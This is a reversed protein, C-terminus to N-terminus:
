REDTLGGKESGPLYKKQFDAVSIPQSFLWGQFCNYGMDVLRTLQEEKEVGEVIASIGMDHVLGAVMRLVNEANPSIELRKVFSMDLKIIDIDLETLVGLSSYGNGFDDIEVIFGCDRMKKVIPMIFHANEMMATETIELHLLATPIRYQETLRNLEALVDLQFLNIPSINVSLPPPDIGQDLWNRLTQCALEWMERDLRSIQGSEECVPVFEGPMIMGFDPHIWRALVEGGTLLGQSDCQPQIFPVFQHEDLAVYIADLMQQTRQSHFIMNEQYYVLKKNEKICQKCAILARDCMISSAARRDSIEYIGCVIEVRYYFDGTIDQNDLVRETFSEEDFASKEILALLHDEGFRGIIGSMGIYDTMHQALKRLLQNGAEHGFFNNFLRFNRINTFLLIYDKDDAEMRKKIELQFQTKNLVNLVNDRANLMAMNHQYKLSRICFAASFYFASVVSLTTLCAPVTVAWWAAEPQVEAAMDPLRFVTHLAMGLVMLGLDVGCCVAIFRWRMAYIAYMLPIVLLPLASQSFFVCFMFMMLFLLSAIVVNKREDTLSLRIGLLLQALVFLFLEAGAWVWLVTEQFGTNVQGYRCCLPLWLALLLVPILSFGFHRASDRNQKEQRDM